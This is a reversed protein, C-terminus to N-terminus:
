RIAGPFIAKIMGLVEEALYITGANYGELFLDEHKEEKAIAVEDRLYNRIEILLEHEKTM